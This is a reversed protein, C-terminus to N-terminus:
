VNLVFFNRGPDPPVGGGGGSPATPLNRSAGQVESGTLPAALGLKWESSRWEFLVVRVRRGTCEGRAGKPQVVRHPIPSMTTFSAPSQPRAPEASSMLLQIAEITMYAAGRSFVPM